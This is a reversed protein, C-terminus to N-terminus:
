FDVFKVNDNKSAMKAMVVLPVLLLFQRSFAYAKELILTLAPQPLTLSRGGNDWNYIRSCESPGASAHRERCLKQGTCAEHKSAAWAHNSIQVFLCPWWFPEVGSMGLTWEAACTAAAWFAVLQNTPALSSRPWMFAGHIPSASMLGCDMPPTGARDHRGLDRWEKWAISAQTWKNQVASRCFSSSLLELAQWVRHHSAPKQAEALVEVHQQKCTEPARFQSGATMVINRQFISDFQEQLLFFNTEDAQKQSSASAVLGQFRRKREVPLGFLRSSGFNNLPCSRCCAVVKRRSTEGQIAFNDCADMYVCPPVHRLFYSLFFAFYFFFCNCMQFHGKLPLSWITRQRQRQCKQKCLQRCSRGHASPTAAFVHRLFYALFFAFYFFICNCIQFHNQCRLVSYLDPQEKGKGKASKNACSAVVVVMHVQHPQSSM